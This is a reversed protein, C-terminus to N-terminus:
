PKVPQTTAERELRDAARQARERLPPPCASDALVEAYLGRAVDPRNLREHAVAVYYLATAAVRPDPTRQALALLAGAAEAPRGARIACRWRVIEWEGAHEPRVYPRAREVLQRAIETQGAELANQAATLVFSDPPLTLATPSSVPHQDPSTPPLLGLTPQTTARPNPDRGAHKDPTQGELLMLELHLIQLPKSAGESPGEELISRLIKLARANEASGPPGPHRPATGEALAPWRAALHAYHRIAQDFGGPQQDLAHVLRRTILDQIWPTTAQELVQEYARVAVSWQAAAYAREATELRPLRDLGLWEVDSLPKHLLEGSVGRFTLQGDRFAIIRVNRFAPRDTLKVTDAPARVTVLLAVSALIVRVPSM